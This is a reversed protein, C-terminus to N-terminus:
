AETPRWGMEKLQAELFALGGELTKRYRDNQCSGIDRLVRTRQLLLSDRKREVEIQQPTLAVRPSGGQRVNASEIQAQVSKSEWGRAV